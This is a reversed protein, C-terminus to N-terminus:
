SKTLGYLFFSSGSVFSNLVAPYLRLSTIAATSSWLSAAAYIDANTANNEAVASMSVSKNTSGAYNPIYCESNGFSNATATDGNALGAFAITTYTDSNAGVGDARILRSSLNSSSGNFEILVSEVRLARNTRSSFVLYLDTYTSPINSFTVDATTGTLTQKAILRMTTAM